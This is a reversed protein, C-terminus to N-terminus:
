EIADSGHWQNEFYHLLYQFFFCIFQKCKRHYITSHSNFTYDDKHNYSEQQLVSKFSLAYYTCKQLYQIM